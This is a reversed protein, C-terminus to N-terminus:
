LLLLGGSLHHGLTSHHVLGGALNSGELYHSGDSYVQRQGVQKKSISYCSIDWDKM